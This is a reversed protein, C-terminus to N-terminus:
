LTERRLMTPSSPIDRHIRRVQWGSVEIENSLTEAVYVSRHKGGTCGIGITLYSKGESQFRPLFPIVANRSAKIFSDFEEDSEIYDRVEQDLGTLPRLDDEYHPNKLFRVDFVIDAERPVGNRFAFSIVNITLQTGANSGFHGRILERLEPVALVTTDVVLDAEMKLPALLARERQIGTLVEENPSLPHRRRTESFRRRLVDDDCEFFLLSVQMDRSQGAESRMRMIIHPDFGRTRSDIGIALSHPLPDIPNLLRVLLHVPINDVADFGLDELIKLCTTRGAGAMGTVIVLRTM